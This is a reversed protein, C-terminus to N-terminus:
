KNPPICLLEEIRVIVRGQKIISRREILLRNIQSDDQLLGGKVLSDLLPKIVNDIDRKRKDPPYLWVKMDITSILATEIRKLAMSERIKIWVHYYFAKTESTDVRQQYKKGNQTTVIKGVTKYHNVSPPYPLILEIM